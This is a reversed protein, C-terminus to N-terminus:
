VSQLLSIKQDAWGDDDPFMTDMLVSSGRGEIMPSVAEQLKLFHTTNLHLEQHSNKDKYVEYLHFLNHDESNRLIDFRYCNLEDNVSGIAGGFSAVIFDQLFEEKVRLTVFIAYM